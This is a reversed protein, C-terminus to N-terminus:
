AQELIVSTAAPQNSYRCEASWHREVTSVMAEELAGLHGSKMTCASDEWLAKNTTSIGGGNSGFVRRQM